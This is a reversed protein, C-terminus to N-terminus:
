TKHRAKTKKIFDSYFKVAESSTGSFVVKGKDLCIARECMKKVESLSHSVLVVTNDKGRIKELEKKCKEKFAEDGVALVEDILLIDPKINIAIAFGLRSRMGSSYKKMPTHIFREIESFEVIADYLEDIEKKKLGMIAGNLYINESGTLDEHFGTGIQLLGVSGNVEVSGEDPKYIGSLIQLLTSKGAGNRGIVGFFEGREISFSVNRLPWFTEKGPIAPNRKNGNPKMKRILTELLTNKKQQRLMFSVGLNKTEVALM